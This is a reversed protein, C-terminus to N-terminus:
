DTIEFHPIPIIFKGDYFNRLKDIIEHKFNWSLIVIYDPTNERIHDIHVIPIGTGPSFKGIKEPTEDAIYDLIHEDIKASNLLTNGKASAAFGAIKFGQKKLSKIEYSFDDIVHNVTDSWAIYKEPTTFGHEIENNLYEQVTKEVPIKSEIHTVKVRVTGGHIPFKEIDYIKMGVKKCLFDVPHIGLYSMHEFYVTDFENREILDVLYPFEIIFTGEQHLAVKIGELFSKIDDVHAFVNTATIVNAKGFQKVIDKATDLNWFLPISIVGMSEAIACLNRAPDVNLGICHIEDQFEHLLAGDNGAIDIVFSKGNLKGDTILSKAMKRCHEKYGGNISSRYTYYGFLVEPDIVETLQSLKCNDCFQVQLPFREQSKALESTKELNNPLPMNGLNLYTKLNENGCIRCSLKHTSLISM